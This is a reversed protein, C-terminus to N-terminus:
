SRGYRMPSGKLQGWTAAAQEPLLLSGLSPRRWLQSVRRWLPSARRFRLRDRLAEMGGKEFRYRWEIVTDLSIKLGRAIGSVSKGEGRGMIVKAREALRSEETGRHARAELARKAKKRVDPFLRSKATPMEEEGQMSGYERLIAFSCYCGYHREGYKVACFFLLRQGIRAGELRMIPVAFFLVLHVRAM